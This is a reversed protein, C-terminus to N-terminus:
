WRGGFAFPPSTVTTLALTQAAGGRAIPFTRTAGFARVLLEGRADPAGGVLLTRYRGEPLDGLSATRAATRTSAPTWPSIVTGSPTLLVVTPCHEVGDVCRATAEFSGAAARPEWAPASGNGLAALLQKVLPGPKDLASAERLAAERDGLRARCRLAEYRAEDSAPGLEVLSRFHACARREDGAAEFARAARQHLDASLPAGELQADVATCALLGEGQAAAAQALLERARPLDPDLSAFRQAAQLAEPFRGRLLLGRILAEHRARSRDDDRLAQRLKDLADEGQARWAEDGAQHVASPGEAFMTPRLAEVRAPPPGGEPAFVIPYTVTVSGSEPAPFSLGQFGRVVCSVVGADSLSSGGDAASGVEGNALILFRVTVRGALSPDRRLGNEYCRRLRGAQTRVIRQIVEPPLRGSVNASGMAIRPSPGRVQAAQGAGDAIPGIRGHGSGFGLGGGGEGVGSLGLSGASGVSDMSLSPAPNSFHGVAGPVEARNLAGIMGFDLQSLERAITGARGDALGGGIGFGSAGSAGGSPQTREIGFEAFMRDNELVLLATRRSMVHHAASLAVIQKDAAADRSGELDAIKAGAWLRAFARADASAPAWALARSTEWPAGGLTGRLTITGQEGAPARATVWLEEGARLPPLVRPYVDTVSAPMDLSANLLLPARLDLAIQAAREGLPAGTSVREYPAALARGLGGLVVEDVSRGAGLLRLDIAQAEITPRVRAAITEVSLEGASVAGDGLYVIQGASSSGLRAAASLLAGALDSSGGPELASLWRGADGIAAETPALLGDEPYASCASDCALLVFREAPDLDRILAAALEAAGALTEKSQSGSVDLVLARDRRVAAEAPSGAPVRVPLRMAVFGPEPAPERGKKPKIPPPAPYATIPSTPGKSRQYGVVFDRAPVFSKASFHAEISGEKVSLSALHGPTRPDGLLAGSDTATLDLSFDGITLARDEGTSLPYLYRAGGEGADLVQDYALVVKRSGRPPLPFVRLSLESGQTWELLAPDRPRVSDDVIGKFIREARGREVMEGEVLEDGVWLALRSVSADPPVPFLYRGELVRATDNQFVEEIETRALGDHIVVNVKHSALTVGSVIEGTGPVRASMTGLGRPRGAHSREGPEAAEASLADGLGLSAGSRRESPKGPAALAGEGSRLLLPEGAGALTLRGRRVLLTAGDSPTVRLDIRAPSAPDVTLRSGAALIPHEPAPADAPDAALEAAGEDFSLSAPAGKHLSLRAPGQLILRRKGGLDLSARAGAAVRLASEEGIKAGAEVPSCAESGSACRLAAPDTSGVAPQVTALTIEWPEPAPVPPASCGLLAGAALASAWLGM